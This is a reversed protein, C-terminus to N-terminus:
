AMRQNIFSDVHYPRGAFVILVNNENESKEIIRQAEAKISEKYRKQEENAKKFAIAFKKKGIGLKKFYDFCGRALLKEDKFSIPPTDYAIGYKQEPDIANRIVDPYGTVVPCNFSNEVNEFEIKEYVVKPYFIRDPKKRNFEFYTRSGTKCAYM